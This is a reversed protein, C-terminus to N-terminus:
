ECVGHEPGQTAPKVDMGSPPKEGLIAQKLHFKPPPSLLFLHILPILLLILLLLLLLFYALLFIIM